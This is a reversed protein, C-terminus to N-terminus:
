DDSFFEEGIDCYCEVITKTCMPFPLSCYQKAWQATTDKTASSFGGGACTQMTTKSDGHSAHCSATYLMHSVHRPTAVPLANWDGGTVELDSNHIWCDDFSGWHDTLGEQRVNFWVEGGEEIKWQGSLTVLDGTSYTYLVPSNDRTTAYCYKGKLMKVAILEPTATVFLTPTFTPTFLEVTKTITPTFELLTPTITQTGFVPQATFQIKDGLILAAAIIGLMIMGSVALWIWNTKRLKKNDQKVKKNSNGSSLSPKEIIRSIFDALEEIHEELPPTIADLWHLSSLYYKMSGSPTIDELRFPLITIGDNVACDVEKIAQHSQNSNETFVLLFIKSATIADVIAQTWEQGPLVDRPAIWCRIGRAELGACIADAIIKDKSSHSIFVDHAM